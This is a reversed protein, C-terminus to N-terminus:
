CSVKEIFNNNPRIYWLYGEVKEYGLEKLLQMYEAVQKAYKPQQQGFKFDVVIVKDGTIMVRDPRRIEMENGGDASGAKHATLIERELYVKNDPSFWEEAYSNEKIASRVLNAIDDYESELVLGEDIVRQLAKDVDDIKVINEFVYHLLRGRQIFSRQNEPDGEEGNVFRAAEYTQAFRVPLKGSCFVESINNDKSQGENSRVMEGLKWVADPCNESPQEKIAGQISTYREDFLLKNLAEGVTKVSGDDRLESKNTLIIMNNKARTTAVYLKNAADVRMDQLEDEYERNFITNKLDETHKVCVKRMEEVAPLGLDANKLAENENIHTTDCWIEVTKSGRSKAFAWDCFPIIVSHSELGKSTHITMIRIGSSIEKEITKAALDTEWYKLFAALNSTRRHSFEGLADFFANLYSAQGQLFQSANGIIDTYLQEFLETIPLLRLAPLNDNNLIRPCFKEPAEKVTEIITTMSVSKGLVMNQYVYAVYVFDANKKGETPNNKGYNVCRAAYILLNVAMSNDLQYAESSVLNYCINDKKDTYADLYQKIQTVQKKKEILIAIDSPAVGQMQLREIANVVAALMPTNKDEAEEDAETNNKDKEPKPIFRVEVYGCDKKSESPLLQTANEYIDKLGLNLDCINSYVFNNFAIINGDSRFNYELDTVSINDRDCYRILDKIREDDKDLKNLAKLIHWDGNRWRYISQKIDGVILNRSDNGESLANALLLRFNRWQLVSTDQFEDIMIHKIHTGIKEYIFPVDSDGVMDSLLSTTDSLLFRNNNKNEEELTHKIHSLLGYESLYQEMALLSNLPVVNKVIKELLPQGESSAFEKVEDPSNKKVWEDSNAAMEKVTDSPKLFAAKDSSTISTIFPQLRNKWKIDVNKIKGDLQDAQEKINEWLCEIANKVEDQANCVIDSAKDSTLLDQRISEQTLNKSFEVLQDTISGRKEEALLKSVFDSIQKRLREDSDSNEITIDVADARAQKDEIELIFQSNLGLEYTMNRLVSQFFTDITEIRFRGYDHLLFFRAKEARKAIENNDTVGSIEKVKNLFSEDESQTKVDAIKHLHEIIRQKMEATSKNTFTVALIERYNLPNKILLAVYEAALTFTKGSGASATYIKLQNQQNM